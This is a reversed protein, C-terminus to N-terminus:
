VPNIHVMCHKLTPYMGELEKHIHEAMSHAEYLSLNGDMAIELDIYFSAGFTRTKLDDIRIIAEHSDIIKRIENELDKDISTDLMKSISDKGIDFAVKIVMLAIVLAALPDLIPFGLRAGVIGILSGISSLADSRHHWADAQLASSNIRKAANQTYWYMWEKVGISIAAAVIALAGPVALPTTDAGFIKQLATWGMGIGTLCLIVSLFIAAVCELRDHGYQHKEDEEIHAMNVGIIVVFTSLVDSASHVADSLLAGSQAIFGIIFKLISLGINVIISIVSVRMAIKKNDKQINLNTENKEM